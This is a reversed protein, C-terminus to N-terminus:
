FPITASVNKITWVTFRSDSVLGTGMVVRDESTIRVFRDTYVLDKNQDWFLLETELKEKKENKGVVSDRLEWLKKNETFKAYKSSLTAVPQKNGDYFLVNIGHRFETYPPDANSYKEILPAIFILQIKASDTSVTTDNKISVSPLSLIDSKKILDLKRNCAQSLFILITGVSIKFFSVAIYFLTKM